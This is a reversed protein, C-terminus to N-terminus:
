GCIVVYKIDVVKRKFEKEKAKVESEEEEVYRVPKRLIRDSKRVEVLYEVKRKSNMGGLKEFDSKVHPARDMMDLMLEMEELASVAVLSPQVLRSSTSSVTPASSLIDAGKFPDNYDVYGHRPDDAIDEQYSAEAIQGLVGSLSQFPGGNAASVNHLQGGGLEDEHEDGGELTRTSMARYDEEVPVNVAFASLVEEAPEQKFEIEIKYEIKVDEVKVIELDGTVVKFGVVEMIQKLEEMGCDQSLDCQGTYLLALLSKVSAPSFQPLLISPIDQTLHSVTRLLTALLPCQSMLLFM